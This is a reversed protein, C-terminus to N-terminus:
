AWRLETQVPDRLALDVSRQGPLSLRMATQRWCTERVYATFYSTLSARNTDSSTDGQLFLGCPSSLRRILCCLVWVRSVTRTILAYSVLSTEQRPEAAGPVAEHWSGWGLGLERWALEWAAHCLPGVPSMAARGQRPSVGAAAGATSGM